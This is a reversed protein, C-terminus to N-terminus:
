RQPLSESQDGGSMPFFVGHRNPAPFQADYLQKRSRGRPTDFHLFDNQGRGHGAHSGEDIATLKTSAPFLPTFTPLEDIGPLRKAGFHNLQGLCDILVFQPVAPPEDGEFLEVVNDGLQSVAFLARRVELATETSAPRTDTEDSM